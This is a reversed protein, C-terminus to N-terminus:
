SAPDNSPSNVASTIPATPLKGTSAALLSADRIVHRAREATSHAHKQLLSFESAIRDFERLSDHADALSQLARARGVPDGAATVEALEANADAIWARVEALDHANEQLSAELSRLTHEAERLNRRAERLIEAIQNM